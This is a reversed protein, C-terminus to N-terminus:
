CKHTWTSHLSPEKVQQVLISAFHAAASLVPQETWQLWWSEGLTQVPEWMVLVSCIQTGAFSHFARLCKVCEAAKIRSLCFSRVSIINRLLCMLDTEIYICIYIYSKIEWVNETFHDPQWETEEMRLNNPTCGDKVSKSIHPCCKCIHVGSTLSSIWASLCVAPYGSFTNQLDKPCKAM